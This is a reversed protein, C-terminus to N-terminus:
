ASQQFVHCSIERDEQDTHGTARQYRSGIAMRACNAKRKKLIGIISLPFFEEIREKRTSSKM